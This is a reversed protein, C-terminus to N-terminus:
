SKHCRFPELFYVYNQIHANSCLIVLKLDYTFKEFCVHSRNANPTQFQKNKLDIRREIKSVTM